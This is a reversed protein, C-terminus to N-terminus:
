ELENGDRHSAAPESEVHDFMFRWARIRDAAHALRMVSPPPCNTCAALLVMATYGMLMEVLWAPFLLMLQLGRALREKLPPAIRAARQVRHIERRLYSCLKDITDSPSEADATVVALLAVGLVPVTVEIPEDELVTGIEELLNDQEEILRDQSDDDRRTEPEMSKSM